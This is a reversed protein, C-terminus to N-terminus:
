IRQDRNRAKEVEHGICGNIVTGKLARVAVSRDLAHREAALDAPRRARHRAVLSSIARVTTTVSTIKARNAMSCPAHAGTAGIRRSPFASGGGSVAYSPGCPM